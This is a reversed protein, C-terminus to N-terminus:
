RLTELNLHGFKVTRRRFILKDFRSGVVEIPRDKVSTAIEYEPVFILDHACERVDSKRHTGAVKRLDQLHNVYQQILVQSMPEANYVFQKSGGVEESHCRFQCRYAERVLAIRWRDGV